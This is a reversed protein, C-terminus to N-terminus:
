LIQYIIIPFSVVAFFSWWYHNIFVFLISPSSKKSFLNRNKKLCQFSGIGWRLRQTFLEKLSSPVATHCMADHVNIARYGSAYIEMSTDMDETMTDKKFYGIKELVKKRYCICAGFFWIGNRFLHSFSRRLLNHYHYEIRQFMGVVSNNNKAVWSGNTLGVKPDSFPRVLKKLADENLL